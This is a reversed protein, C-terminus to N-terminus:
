YSQSVGSINRTSVSMIDAQVNPLFSSHSESSIYYLRFYTSHYLIGTGKTTSPSFKKIPLRSNLGGKKNRM